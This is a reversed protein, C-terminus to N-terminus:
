GGGITGGTSTGGAGQAVNSGWDTAGGGGGGGFLMQYPSQYGPTTSPTGFFTNIGATGLKGLAGIGAAQAAAQQQAAVGSAQLQAELMRQQAQAQQAANGMAVNLLDEGTLRLNPPAWQRLLGQAFQQNRQLQGLPAKYQQGLSQSVQFPNTGLDWSSGAGAGGFQGGGPGLATQLAAQMQPDQQGAFPLSAQQMMALAGPGLHQAEWSPPGTTQGLGYSGRMLNAWQDGIAAAQTYLPGTLSTSVQRLKPPKPPSGGGGGGGLVSGM